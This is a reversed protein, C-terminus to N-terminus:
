RRGHTRTCRGTRHDVALTLPVICSATGTVENGALDRATATLHYVWRGQRCGVAGGAGRRDRGSGSWRSPSSRGTRHDLWARGGAPERRATDTQLPGRAVDPRHAPHEDAGPATRRRRSGQASSRRAHGNTQHAIGPFLPTVVTQAEVETSVWLALGSAVVLRAARYSRM